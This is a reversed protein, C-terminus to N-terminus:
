AANISDGVTKIVTAQNKEVESNIKVIEANTKDIEAQTKELGKSREAQQFMADQQMAEQQQQAQQAQQEESGKMSEIFAEKGRLSSLEIVKEFPIDPYSQALQAVLAFQEEQINAVDPAEEILIDVDLESLQNEVGVVQNLRPDNQYQPPLSGYQQQLQEGLTIPRNIGVWKLNNEDDTVRVWREGDWYQKIRNWIQRYIRKKLHSHADMVPALERTGAQQRIIEARGSMVRDESGTVSTNAGVVNFIEKAEQLLQFNGQTMDRTDITGFDKGWEGSQIEVHGDPKALEIKNQATNMGSRQNGFTQRQSILHLSKSRRKNVEDQPSILATVYGYRNGERDIFASQFELSCAPKGDEDLYPMPKGGKLLGGKTLYAYHWVNGERYQIYIIKIRRRQSDNWKYEPKDEHTDSYPSESKDIAAVLKDQDWDKKGKADEYDMWIVIGKYKADSFDNKRSHVDWFCRDWPIQSLEVEIKDNNQVAQIDFAEVGEMLLNGFGESALQDFDNNDCVFRIADTVSDADKEHQPTRPLAKPDTRNQSELGKLADITRKVLNFTVVPQKRKKLESEEEATYQKNDYYDRNRESNTRAQSTNQEYEEYYSILKSDLTVSDEM